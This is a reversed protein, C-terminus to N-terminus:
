LFFATKEGSKKDTFVMEQFSIDFQNKWKRHWETETEWWDDCNKKKLHSWHWIKQTGCKAIKGYM